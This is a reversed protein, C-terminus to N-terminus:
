REYKRIPHRKFEKTEDFLKRYTIHTKHANFELERMLRMMPPNFDGIWYLETVEYPFGNKMAEQSICYALAADVGRGSHSKTVGFIKGSAINCHGQWKHYLFKLVGLWNMKGNVFKFFENLEPLFVVVGVPQNQHYAFWVLREDLIPRMRQLTIMTDDTTLPSIGKTLAFSNNYIFAFDEAYKILNHKDVKEFHYDPNKTVREAKAKFKETISGIIRTYSYQNFYNQFGYEEFFRNYYAYNYNQQYNNPHDYGVALIGWFKDRSGFNIGGDMAEMGQEKLWKKCTDFLLFAANQDEICDFFGMGGTPQDNDLDKTHDDIFAAVKGITEGKENQLIWRTCKGHKFHINKEPNFTEEIDINLPRIWNKENKYLKAPFELFEKILHKEQRIEVIKM